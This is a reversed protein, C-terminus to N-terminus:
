YTEEEEVAENLEDLAQRLREVAVRIGAAAGQEDVREEITELTPNLTTTYSESILSLVSL